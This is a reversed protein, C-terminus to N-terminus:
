SACLVHSGRKNSALLWQTGLFQESQHSEVEVMREESILQLVKHLFGVTAILSGLLM